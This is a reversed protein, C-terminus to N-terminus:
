GLARELAELVTDRLLPVKYGTMPLPKAGNTALSAAREFTLSAAPQGTLAAEVLPLRLPINAVGGVGVRAFRIAGGDVGLRVLCEVLPWESRSRSISRFYAAREGALPPPLMLHTILEGEALQHDHHPDSGDGFLEAVPREDRGNIEVRGDYTLLAMGLTSPHPFVCPGLDFVVGYQHYGERAPCSDGGNKFCNFLPHRFYSCRTRQALSGGLTGVARIQPTALCGAAQALGPYSQRIRPEEAIAAIRVLAGLRVAGQEDWEIRDFGGLAMADVLAGRAIGSRRRENLDTGGARYEGRAHSADELSRITTLM